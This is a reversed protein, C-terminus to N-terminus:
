NTGTGWLSWAYTGLALIAGAAGVQALAWGVDSWQKKEWMAQICMWTLYVLSIIGLVSYIWVKWNTAEGNLVQLGGGAASAFNAYGCLLFAYIAKMMHTKEKNNGLM